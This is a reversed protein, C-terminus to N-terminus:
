HGYPGPASFDQEIKNLNLELVRFDGRNVEHVAVTQYNFWLPTATIITSDEIEIPISDCFCLSDLIGYEVQKRCFSYPDFKQFHVRDSGTLCRQPSTAENYKLVVDWVAGNFSPNRVLIHEGIRNIVVVEPDIVTCSLLCFLACVFLLVGRFANPCQLQRKILGFM